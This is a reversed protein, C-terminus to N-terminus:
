NPLITVIIRKYRTLAPIGKDTVKVIFHITEKQQVEPATIYIGQINEAGIPVPKKYSGAEPYNLWLFSLNDGDPDTSAGADLGFLQGSKVTFQEPHNLVVIPPHNANKYSQICWNMRAAFDNQFDKRWRWLTVKNDNITATDRGVARGYEKQVIPSYSDNTNTWIARTEPEFPVGSNGKKLTSFDPQYLEYRGGWGGWEPHEPVNLGNPILSLWSPTDGEMGYAVDPYAAGLPGHAQQINKALWSNSIEDNDIGKVFSTIAVWTTSGYDDGPSVIFFLDPFNNRLWIGSDDQDSITYVRLKAILRKVEAPPKTERISYLAQALTNAGGWVSIWLPRDDNEELVKIIWASGESDKGKGVGEMGYKPLGSKVLKALANAGPFRADHQLLNPQVKGYARILKHIAQPAVSTKKWVSTTAILGKIDIENAYLLLRIFSETDDVEAEIDSLVILRNHPLAQASVNESFLPLFLLFFCYISKM